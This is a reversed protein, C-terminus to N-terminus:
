KERITKNHTKKGQEASQNASKKVTGKNSM